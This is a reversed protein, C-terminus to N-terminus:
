YIVCYFRSELTFGKGINKNINISKIIDQLMVTQTEGKKAWFVRLM